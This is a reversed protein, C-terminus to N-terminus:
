GDGFSHFTHGELVVQQPPIIEPALEIVQQWLESVQVNSADPTGDHTDEVVEVVEDEAVPADVVPESVVTEVGAVVVLEVVPEDSVVSVPTEVPVSVVAVLVVAVGGVGPLM